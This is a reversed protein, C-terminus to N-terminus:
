ARPLKWRFHAALLRLVMVVAAGVVMSIVNGTEHWLLACFIAGIISACAYFHKVFVYPTNGALVDRLISGGVGTITGVFIPLFLGSGPEIQKCTAVGVVTFVGLGLTDMILLVRDFGDKHRNVFERMKPWFVVLSTLAAVVAYIPDKFAQPPINGILIDRLAGGGIATTLGMIMVGLIDMKKEVAVFAGSVAFAVTGIIEFIFIIIDIM